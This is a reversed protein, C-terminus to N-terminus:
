VPSYEYGRSLPVTTRTFYVASSFPKLGSYECKGPVPSIRAGDLCGCDDNPDLENRWGAFVPVWNGWDLPPV